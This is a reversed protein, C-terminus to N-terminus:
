FGPIACCIACAAPCNGVAAAVVIPVFAKAPMNSPPRSVQQEPLPSVGRLYRRFHKAYFGTVHQTSGPLSKGFHFCTALWVACLVLDVPVALVALVLWVIMYGGLELCCADCCSSAYERGSDKFGKAAVADSIFGSPTSYNLWPTIPCVVTGKGGPINEEQPMAPDIHVTGSAIM